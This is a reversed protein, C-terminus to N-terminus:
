LLDASFTVGVAERRRGYRPSSHAEYRDLRDIVLSAHHEQVRPVKEDLLSGLRSAEQTTM